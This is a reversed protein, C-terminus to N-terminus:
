YVVIGITKNGGSNRNKVTVRYSGNRLNLDTRWRDGDVRASGSWIRRGSQEVTIDVFRDGSLGELFVRPGRVRDGSNPRSITLGQFIGGGGGGGGPGSGSWGDVTFRVEAKEWEQTAVARWAGSGLNYTRRWERSNPTFNDTVIRRNSRDFLEIRVPIRSTAVGELVVEGSGVNQGNRPRTFQVYGHIGPQDGKKRIQIQVESSGSNGPRSARARYWGERLSVTTRWRGLNNPRVSTSEVRRNNRDFVELQVPANGRASGEFPIRGETLFDNSRPSSIDVKGDNPNPTPGPREGPNRITSGDALTVVIDRVQYSNRDVLSTHRFNTANRNGRRWATGTGSVRITNRDLAREESRGLNWRDFQRSNRLTDNVAREAARVASSAVAQSALTVMALLMFVGTKPSM